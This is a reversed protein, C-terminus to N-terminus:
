RLRCRGPSPVCSALFTTAIARSDIVASRLRLSPGLKKLLALRELAAPRLLGLVRLERFIARHYDSHAPMRRARPPARFIRAAVFMEFEAELFM